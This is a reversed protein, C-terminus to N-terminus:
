RGHYIRLPSEGHLAKDALDRCRLGRKVVRRRKRAGRTGIVWRSRLQHTAGNAPAGARASPLREDEAGFCMREQRSPRGYGRIVDAAHRTGNQSM